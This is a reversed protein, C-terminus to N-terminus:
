MGASGTLRRKGEASNATSYFCKFYDSPEERVISHLVCVRPELTTHENLRKANSRTTRKLQLAGTPM